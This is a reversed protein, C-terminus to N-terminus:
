LFLKKQNGWSNSIIRAGVNYLKMFMDTNIDSPVIVTGSQGLGIDFLAIKADYAMGKTLALNSFILCAIRM